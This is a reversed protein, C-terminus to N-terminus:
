SSLSSMKVTKCRWDRLDPAYYAAKDLEALFLFWELDVIREINQSAHTTDKCM